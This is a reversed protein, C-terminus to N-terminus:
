NYECLMNKFGLIFCPCFNDMLVYTLTTNLDFRRLSFFDCLKEMFYFHM